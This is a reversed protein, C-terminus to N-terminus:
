PELKGPVAAELVLIADEWGAPTTFTKIGSNAEQGVPTTHGSKPNVWFVSVKPASLKDMNVSFSAKDALYLMAWKGDEHRAALHLVDGETRGGSAFVSQDPIMFWWENRAM